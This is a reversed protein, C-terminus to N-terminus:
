PLDEVAFSNLIEQFIEKHAPYESKDVSCSLSYIISNDKQIALKLFHRVGVATNVEEQALIAQHNGITLSDKTADPMQQNLYNELMMGALEDKVVTITPGPVDPRLEQCVVVMMGGSENRVGPPFERQSWKPPYLFSVGHGSYKIMGISM